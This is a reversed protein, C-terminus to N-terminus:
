KERVGKPVEVDARKRLDRIQLITSAYISIRSFLSASCAQKRSDKNIRQEAILYQVSVTVDLCQPRARDM